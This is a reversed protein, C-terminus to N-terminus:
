VYKPANLSRDLKAKSSRSEIARSKEAILSRMHLHEPQGQELPIKKKNLQRLM